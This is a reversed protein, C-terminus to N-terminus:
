VTGLEAAVVGAEKTFLLTILVTTSGLVMGVLLTGTNVLLPTALIPGARIREEVSAGPRVILKLLAVLLTKSVHLTRELIRVCLYTSSENPTKNTRTYM